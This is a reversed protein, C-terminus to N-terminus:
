DVVVPVGSSHRTQLGPGRTGGKQRTPKCVTSLALARRSPVKHVTLGCVTQAKELFSDSFLQLWWAQVRHAWFPNFQLGVSQAWKEGQRMLLPWRRRYRPALGDDVWVEQECTVAGSAAGHWTQHWNGPSLHHPKKESVSIHQKNLWYKDLAKSGTGRFAPHKPSPFCHVTRNDM